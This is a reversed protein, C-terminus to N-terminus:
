GAIDVIFKEGAIDGRGSVRLHDARLRRFAGTGGTIKATGRYLIQSGKFTVACDGTGSVTGRRNALVFSVTSGRGAGVRTRVKVTGRGLPTGSFTGAQLVVAGGGPLMHVTAHIKVPGASSDAVAPWAAALGATCALLTLPLRRRTM